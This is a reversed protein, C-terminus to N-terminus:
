QMLHGRPGPLYWSCSSHALDLGLVIVQLIIPGPKFVLAQGSSLMGTQPPLPRQDLLHTVCLFVFGNMGLTEMKWSCLYDPNNPFIHLSKLM